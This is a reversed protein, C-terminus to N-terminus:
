RWEYIKLVMSESFGMENVFTNRYLGQEYLIKASEHRLSFFSIMSILISRTLKKDKHEINIVSQRSIGIIKSFDEQTFDLAKRLQPLVDCMLEVCDMIGSSDM